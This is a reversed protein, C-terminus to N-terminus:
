IMSSRFVRLDELRWKKYKEDDEEPYVMEVLHGVCWTVVYSDNQRM